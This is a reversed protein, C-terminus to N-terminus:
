AAGTSAQAMKSASFQILDFEQEPMHRDFSCFSVKAALLLQLVGDIISKANFWILVASRSRAPASLESSPSLRPTTATERSFEWNLM